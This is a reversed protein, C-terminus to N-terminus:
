ECFALGPIGILTVKKTDLRVAMQLKGGAKKSIRVLTIAFVEETSHDFRAKPYADKIEAKTSGVGVGRAKGGGTIQIDTVRRPGSDTTFNVSGELPPKLKASRTNIGLECGPRLPGVLGQQRLKSFKKGLKVGNVGAPTIAKARPAVADAAGAVGTLMLSLALAVLFSRIPHLRFGM